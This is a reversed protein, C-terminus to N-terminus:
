QLLPSIFITSYVKDWVKNKTKKSKRGWKKMTIRKKENKWKEKGISKRNKDELKLVIINKMM